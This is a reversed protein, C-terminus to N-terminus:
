KWSLTGELFIRAKCTVTPSHIVYTYSVDGNNALPYSCVYEVTASDPTITVRLHGANSLIEHTYSNSTSYIGSFGSGTM